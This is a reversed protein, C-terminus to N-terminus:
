EPIGAKRLNAWVNEEVQKLWIPNSSLKLGKYWNISFQPNLKLLKEKSIAAKEM